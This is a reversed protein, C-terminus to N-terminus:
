SWISKSVRFIHSWRFKNSKDKPFSWIKYGVGIYKNAGTIGMCSPSSTLYSITSMKVFEGNKVAVKYIDTTSSM